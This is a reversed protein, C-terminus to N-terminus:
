DPLTLSGDEALAFGPNWAVEWAFGDPDAFYGSYGGWFAEEAPKLLTAGAAVAEALVRDVEDRSRTNYALAFGPFGGGEAPLRADAALEARPYLSLAMGGMQFFAVGQAAAVKRRWGLREYFARARELDAVGLTILSIRPEM